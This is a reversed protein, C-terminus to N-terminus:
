ERLNKITLPMGAAKIGLCQVIHETGGGNSGDGFSGGGSNGGGM